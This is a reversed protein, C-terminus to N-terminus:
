FRHGCMGISGLKQQVSGTIQKAAGSYRAYEALVAQRQENTYEERKSDPRETFFQKELEVVNVDTFVPPIFTVHRVYPGIGSSLLADHSQFPDHLAQDAVMRVDHFLHSMVAHANAFRKCVLRLTRLQGAETEAYDVIRDSTNHKDVKVRKIRPNAVAICAETILDLIESPLSMFDM